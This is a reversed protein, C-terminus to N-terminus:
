QLKRRLDKAVMTFKPQYGARRVLRVVAPNSVWAQIEVADGERAWGELVDENRRAAEFDNGAHALIEAARYGPFNIFRAVIMHTLRDNRFLCMAVAQGRILLEQLYELTLTGLSPAISAELFSQLEGWVLHLDERTFIHTTLKDSSTGPAQTTPTYVKDVGPIGTLETRESWM